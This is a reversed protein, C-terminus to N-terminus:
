AGSNGLFVRRCGCELPVRLSRKSWNKAGGGAQGRRRLQGRRSGPPSHVRSPASPPRRPTAAALPRTRRATQRERRLRPTESLRDPVRLSGAVAVRTRERAHRGLGRAWLRRRGSTQLGRLGRTHLRAGGRTTQLGQGRVALIHLQIHAARQM